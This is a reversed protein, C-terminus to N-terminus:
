APLGSQRALTELQKLDGPPDRRFGRQQVRAAERHGLERRLEKWALVDAPALDGATAEGLRTLLGAVLRVSGRVVLGPSAGKRGSCRREHHRHSGFVQGLDNNTRPLDVVDNCAFLEATQELGRTVLRHLRTLERPAGGNAAGARVLRDAM